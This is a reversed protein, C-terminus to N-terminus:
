DHLDAPWPASPRWPPALESTEDFDAGKIEPGGTVTLVGDALSVDAGMDALISRWLDGVQTTGAPWEPIRVTGGTALAAALFPGANSLDQEIRQDFARIPGPAVM